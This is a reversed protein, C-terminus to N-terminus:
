HLHSPVGPDLKRGKFHDDTVCLTVIRYQSSYREKIGKAIEECRARTQFPTDDRRIFEDTQLNFIFALLWFKTM